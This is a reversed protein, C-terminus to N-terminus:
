FSSPRATSHDATPDKNSTNRRITYKLFCSSSMRTLSWKQISCSKANPFEVVESIMVDELGWIRAIGDGIQLVRGTSEFNQEDKFKEITEKIVWSIDGPKLTM